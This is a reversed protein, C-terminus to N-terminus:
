VPWVVTPLPVVSASAPAPLMAVDLRSTFLPTNSMAPVLAPAASVLRAPVPMTVSPPCTRVRVLAASVKLPTMPPVPPRAMAPPVSVSDPMLVNVPAVVTAPPAVKTSVPVPLMAADLPSAFLPVNSM